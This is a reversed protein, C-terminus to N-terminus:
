YGATTHDRLGSDISEVNAANRDVSYLSVLTKGFGQNRMASMEAPLLRLFPQLTMQPPKEVSSDVPHNASGSEETM